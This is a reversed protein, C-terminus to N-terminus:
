KIIKYYIIDESFLINKQKCYKIRKKIKYKEKKILFDIINDKKAFFYNNQMQIKAYNNVFKIYKIAFTAM